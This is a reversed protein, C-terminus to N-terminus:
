FNYLFYLFVSVLIDFNIDIFGKMYTKGFDLGNTFCHIFTLDIDTSESNLNYKQKTVFIRLCVTDVYSSNQLVFWHVFPLFM